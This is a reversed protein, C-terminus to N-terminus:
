TDLEKKTTILKYKRQLFLIIKLSAKYMLFGIFWGFAIGCLSGAFISAQQNGWNFLSNLFVFIIISVISCGLISSITFFTKFGKSASRQQFGVLVSTSIIGASVLGIVIAIFLLGIVVCLILLLLFVFAGVILLTVEFEDDNQYSNIVLPKLGLFLETFNLFFDTIM